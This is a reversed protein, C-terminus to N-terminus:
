AWERPNKLVEMLKAEESGPTPEWGYEWRALPPLPMLLSEPNVGTRLGFLTGRDYMLNFEVYRGRRLEQWRRHLETYPLHMRRTVIPLYAPCFAELCETVFGLLVEPSRDNLGDFFIGGIGRREKRHPLYFYDDCAKKFGPYFSQDYNNCISKYTGHFYAADEEFLYCPTLNTVGGFWWQADSSEESKSEFYRYNAHVSPVMPNQPHIVVSLGTAQFSANVSEQLLEAKSGLATRFSDPSLAGFVNSFGIGAKEFVAGGGLTRTVGGGGGLRTWRNTSFVATGDLEEIAQCISGQARSLRAEIRKFLRGMSDVGTRVTGLLCAM